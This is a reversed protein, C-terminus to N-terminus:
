VGPAAGEAVQPTKLFYLALLPGFHLLPNNPESDVKIFLHLGGSYGMRVPTFVEQKLHRRLLHPTM